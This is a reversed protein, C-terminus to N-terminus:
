FGTEGYVNPRCCADFRNAFTYRLLLFRIVVLSFPLHAWRGQRHRTGLLSLYQLSEQLSAPDLSTSIAHWHSWLDQGSVTHLVILTRLRCTSILHAWSVRSKFVCRIITKKNSSM